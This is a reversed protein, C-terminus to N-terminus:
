AKGESSGAVAAAASKVGVVKVTVALVILNFATVLLGIANVEPTMGKKIMSMILLPLTQTTPGGLFTTSVVADLSFTFALLAGVLVSPALLPLVVTALARGTSAGLDYAANEYLDAITTMRAQVIVFVYASYILTQVLVVWLPGLRLGPIASVAAMVGSVLIVEPLMLRLYMMTGQTAQFRGSCERKGLAVAVAVVTSLVAVIAAITISQVFASRFERSAIAKSFWELTFGSWALLHENANFANVFTYVIPLYLFVLVAIGIVAAIWHRRLERM